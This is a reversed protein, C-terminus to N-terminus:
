VQNFYERVNRLQTSVSADINGDSTKLICADEPLDKAAIEVDTQNKKLESQLYSLLGPMRESIEVTIWDADKVSNVAQKVLEGLEQDDSKIQKALIRSAIDVALNKLEEEYLHMFQINELKIQQITRNTNDIAQQIAEQKELRGKELGEQYANERIQAADEGAQKLIADRQSHAQKLLEESVRQAEQKANRIIQEQMEQTSVQQESQNESVEQIPSEPIKADPILVVEDSESIQNQKIVSLLSRM